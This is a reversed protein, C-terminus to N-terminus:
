NVKIMIVSINDDGGAKKASNICHSVVKAPPNSQIIKAIEHNEIMGSLGDSCFLYLEGKSMKRRYIDVDVDKEFGVSRTIVNKGVVESMNAEDLLGAKLQENVYSHDETLLWLKKESFLYARSDGVNGIILEDGKIVGLVMTTGMGMLEPSEVHGKHFIRASSEKFCKRILEEPSIPKGTVNYSGVIEQTTRVALDSAIDGGEHGGMGDAVIFLKLERDVLISDQNSQRKLGVDTQGWVDFKMVTIKHRIEFGELYFSLLFYM